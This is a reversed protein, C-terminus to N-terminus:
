VQVIDLFITPEPIIYEYYISDFDLTTLTQYLAKAMTAARCVQKFLLYSFSCSTAKKITAYQLSINNIAKKAVFVFVPFPLTTYRLRLHM